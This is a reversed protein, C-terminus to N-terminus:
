QKGARPRVSPVSEANLTKAITRLSAGDACMEFVRRVISAEGEDIAQKVGEATTLNQYGFCRGGTCLGKLAKGELGRHTKKALEKIYISDVLGHVIHLVESQDSESDIGQSVAVVRIGRFKLTEVIRVADSLNRSIRSTDDVLLVDFPRPQDASADLLRNLGPRDAGSGSLAADVFTQLNSIQWGNSTAYESCKRIQDDISAPSQQSDSYRAYIACRQNM